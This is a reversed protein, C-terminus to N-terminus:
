DSISMKINCTKAFLMFTMRLLCYTVVQHEVAIANTRQWVNCPIMQILVAILLSTPHDRRAKGKTRVNVILANSPM